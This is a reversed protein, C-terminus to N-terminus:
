VSRIENHGMARYMVFSVLWSVIFTGVVVYGLVGFNDAASNVADWIGGALGLQDAVL